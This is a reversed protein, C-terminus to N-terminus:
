RGSREQGSPRLTDVVAFVASADLYPLPAYVAGMARAIQDGEPRPRPSTDIYAASVGAERVRRAAALADDNAAARGPLGTRGINARGDTLLVLLPTRDSSREALALRLAVDIGSALPTGGGGPLDALRRKARTLSRTPPLLLEAESGRFAVLAV